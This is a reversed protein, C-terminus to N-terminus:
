YGGLEWALASLKGIVFVEAARGQQPQSRIKTRKFLGALLLVTSLAMMSSLGCRCRARIDEGREGM